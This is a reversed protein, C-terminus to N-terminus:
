KIVMKNDIESLKLQQKSIKPIKKGLKYVVHLPYFEFYNSEDFWACKFDYLRLGTLRSLALAYLTLQEIPKENKANPKYDLIHATGNRIQLLDIHGTMVKDLKIPIEFNLENNMHELDDNHMYVPVECAVTVSDNALMFRQLVEHRQKNDQVAQLVLNATRTAFNQKEKIMVESLNFNARVESARVGEKFYQHPCDVAIFELFERLPEFKEHKFDQLILATKARHYLFNFVQRHYLRVTQIVQNPSFLAKGHKRMRAYKCIPEFEKLWNSLSQHNVSVGYHEKLFGCSEELSYGQNYYSLGDLIIKLPFTKGKVKQETFTRKCANCKYLQATELKKKRTGRKVIERSQCYICKEITKEKESQLKELKEFEPLTEPALTPKQFIPQPTTKEKPM